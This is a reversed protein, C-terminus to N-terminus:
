VVSKRDLGTEGDKLSVCDVTVVGFDMGKTDFLNNVGSM